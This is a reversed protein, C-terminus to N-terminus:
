GLDRYKRSVVYELTELIKVIDPKTILHHTPLTVLQSAIRQGSPYQGNHLKLRAGLGKLSAVSAPYSTSIGLVRAKSLFRQRTEPDTIRIPFRLYAPRSKPLEKVGIITNSLEIDRKYIAAKQVRAQTTDKLQIMQPLAISALRDDFREVKYGEDYVTKGLGLFPLSLPIGYLSPRLFVYYAVAKSYNSVKKFFGPYKEEKYTERLYDDLLGNRSLVFGGNISTVNKGKDFSIIGADGFSGVVRGEFEAGLSQAADDILYVNNEKAITELNHLDNPLGFLNSTVIALVTNFDIQRLQRLDYSLTSEDIDCVLVDLGAKIISSVVSYCTFSPIVVFRRNTPKSINFIARLLFVMAGRGYSFGYVGNACFYHVLLKSLNVSDIKGGDLSTFAHVLDKAHIKCGTPPFASM